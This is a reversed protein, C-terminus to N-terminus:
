INKERSELLSQTLVMLSAKEVTNILIIMKYLGAFCATDKEEM